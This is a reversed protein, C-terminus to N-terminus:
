ALHVLCNRPREQFWKKEHLLQPNDVRRLVDGDREVPLIMVKPPYILILIFLMRFPKASGKGAPRENLQFRSFRPVDLIAYCSRFTLVHHIEGGTISKPAESWGYAAGMELIVTQADQRVGPNWDSRDSWPKWSDYSSSLIFKQSDPSTWGDIRMPNQLRETQPFYRFGADDEGTFTQTTIAGRAQPEFTWGAWSWSPFGPRRSCQGHFSWALGRGIFLEPIGAVFEGLYIPKELAGTIGSFAKLIDSAYSADRTAYHEVLPSYVKAFITSPLSNSLFSDRVVPMIFLDQRPIGEVLYGNVDERRIGEACCFFVERPTFVLCRCSLTYEQLTWARSNWKSKVLEQKLSLFATGMSLDGAQFTKQIPLRAQVSPLGSDCDEGSAAVITLYAQSYVLSMNNIQEQVALPDDQVICLSDVWLYKLGIMQCVKIADSITKPLRM